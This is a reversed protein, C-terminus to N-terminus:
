TIVVHLFDGATLTSEGPLHVEAKGDAATIECEVAEGAIEVRAEAPEGGFPLVLTAAPLSGSLVEIEASTCREEREYDLRCTAMATMMLGSYHARDGPPDLEIKGRWGDVNLGLRAAYAGWISLPRAYHNNCECHDFRMGERDHREFVLDVIRDGEEVMGAEYLQLALYYETGTWPTQWQMYPFEDLFHGDPYSGNIVAFNEPQVNKRLVLRLQERVREPELFAGLGMVAATANGNLADTMVGTDRLEVVAEPRACCVSPKQPELHGEEGKREYEMEEGKVRRGYYLVYREGDWLLDEFSELGQEFLERYRDADEDDLLEAMEEMARLAALYIGAMFTVIGKMRWHDYTIGGEIYPLGVDYFDLGIILDMARRATPWCREVMDRNGSWKADRYLQLVYQCSCDWRNYGDEGGAEIEEVSGPLGHHIKGNEPHAIATHMDLVKERLEPFLTSLTYSSYHDVDMTNFACCGHGEQLGFRGDRIFHTSKTLTSLQDLLSLKLRHPLTSEMLTEPLERSRALFADHNGILYRAVEASDEFWNEYVHGVPTGHISVHNPYYWAMGANVASRSGPEIRNQVCLWGKNWRQPGPPDAYEIRTLREPMLPGDLGGSVHIPWALNPMYPNAEIATTRSGEPGRMWITMCGSTDHDPEDLSGQMRILTADDFESQEHEQRVSEAAYGSFNRQQWVLSVDLPEDSRNHFSFDLYAGPLSSNRVDRPIFSTWARLSVGIPMDEDLYDLYIFPYEARYDIAPYSKIFFYKHVRWFHGIALMNGYGTFLWRYVPRRGERHVRVFFDTEGAAVEPPDVSHYGRDEHHTAWPRCNLMNWHHFRGDPWLEVGGTGIGGLNLGSTSAGRERIIGAQRPTDDM